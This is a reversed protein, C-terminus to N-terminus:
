SSIFRREKWSLPLKEILNCGNAMNFYEKRNLDDSVNTFRKFTKNEDINAFKNITLCCNIKPAPFLGYWVGGDKCDNKGRTWNKGVLEAKDLKDWPKKEIYMSDTDEYYLYNTYFGDIAHLFNKM